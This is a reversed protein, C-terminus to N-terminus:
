KQKQRASLTEIILELYTKPELKVLSLERRALELLEASRQPSETMVELEVFEGLSEVDDLEIRLKDLIYSTRTKRVTHFEKFGLREIIRQAALPSDTRLTLEERAKANEQHMRPGKYTLESTGELKRLRLAEDTKGFDRSPHAFYVDEMTGSFVKKAGLHVLTKEVKENSPSWYKAEVEM